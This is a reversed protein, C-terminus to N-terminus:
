MANAGPKTSVAAEQAIGDGVNIQQTQGAGATPTFPSTAQNAYFDVVLQSTNSSCFAFQRTM